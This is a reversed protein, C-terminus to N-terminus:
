PPTCSLSDKELRGPHLSSPPFAPITKSPDEMYRWLASFHLGLVLLVWLLHSTETALSGWQEEEKEGIEDQRSARFSCLGAMPM